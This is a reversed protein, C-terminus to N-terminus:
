RFRDDLIIGCNFCYKKTGEKDSVEYKKLMKDLNTYIDSFMQNEVSILDTKSKRYLKIKEEKRKIYEKGYFGWYEIYLKLEPLFWDSKISKENIKITKEYIHQIGRLYLYNDIILEGKSKVIHGDLCRLKLFLETKESAKVKNLFRILQYYITFFIFLVLFGVVFLILLFNNM